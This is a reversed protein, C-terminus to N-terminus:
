RYSTTVWSAPWMSPSSCRRGDEDVPLRGLTICGFTRPTLSNVTGPRPANSGNWSLKRLPYRKLGYGRSWSATRYPRVSPGEPGLGRTAPQTPARERKGEPPHQPAPQRHQRTQTTSESPPREATRGLRLHSRTREGTGPACARAHRKRESTQGSPRTM